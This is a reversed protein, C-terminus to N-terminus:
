LLARKSQHVSEYSLTKTEGNYTVTYNGGTGNVKVSDYVITAEGYNGPLTVKLEGTKNKGISELPDKGLYGLGEGDKVYMKINTITTLVIGTLKHKYNQFQIYSDDNGGVGSESTIKYGDGDYSWQSRGWWDGGMHENAPVLLEKIISNTVNVIEEHQVKKPTVVLEYSSSTNQLNDVENLTKVYINHKFSDVLTPRNFKISIIGYDNKTVSLVDTLTLTGNKDVTFKDDNEKVIYQGNYNGDTIEIIHGTRTKFPKIEITYVDENDGTFIATEPPSLLYGINDNISNHSSFRTQKESEVLKSALISTVSYEYDINNKASTDVFSLSSANATNQVDAIRQWDGNQIKRYVKYAKAKEGINDWSVSVSNWSEAKSAVINKPPQIWSGETLPLFESSITEDKSLIPRVVFYYPRSLPYDVSTDNETYKTSFTFSNTRSTYTNLPTGSKDNTLYVDIEYKSTNEIADWKLEIRDSYIDDANYNSANVSFGYPGYLYGVDTINTPATSRNKSDLANVRFIYKKGANATGTDKTFSAIANEDTKTITIFENPVKTFSYETKDSEYEAYEVEYGLADEVNNFTLTIATTSTSKTASLTKVSELTKASEINKLQYIKNYISSEDNYIARLQYYYSAGNSLKKGDNNDEYVGNLAKIENYTFAKIEKKDAAISGRYLAFTINNVDLDKQVKKLEEESIIDFSLTIVGANDKKESASFSKVFSISEISPYTYVINSTIAVSEESDKNKLIITYQYGNENKDEENSITIIDTDTFILESDNISDGFSKNEIIFANKSEVNENTQVEIANNIKNAVNNRYISYTFDDKNVFSPISFTLITNYTTTKNTSYVIKYKDKESEAKENLVKLTGTISLSYPLSYAGKIEISSSDSTYYSPNKEGQIEYYPTITYNYLSNAVTNKDVFSFVLPSEETGKPQSGSDDYKLVTITENTKVNTRTIQFLQKGEIGDNIPSAEFTLEIRNQLGNKASASKIKSPTYSPDTKVVFDNKTNPIETKEINMNVSFQVEANSKLSVELMDESTRAIERIGSKASKLVRNNLINENETDNAINDFEADSLVVFEPSYIDAGNNLVSTRESTSFYLTAKQNQLVQKVEFTPLTASEVYSSMDGKIIKNGAIKFSQVAFVYREAKDLNKFTYSTEDKEMTIMKPETGNVYENATQYYVYYGSADDVFSWSIPVGDDTIMVNPATITKVKGPKSAFSPNNIEQNEPTIKCSFLSLIMFLSAFSLLKKMFTKGNLIKM